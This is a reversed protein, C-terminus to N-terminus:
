RNVVDCLMCCSFPWCVVDLCCIDHTNEIDDLMRACMVVSVWGGVGECILFIDIFTYVCYPVVRRQRFVVRTREDTSWRVM